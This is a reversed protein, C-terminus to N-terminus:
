LRVLRGLGIEQCTVAFILSLGDPESAAPVAMVSWPAAPTSGTATLSFEISERSSASGPIRWDDAGVGAARGGTRVGLVRGVSLSRTSEGTGVASVGAGLATTVMGEAEGGVIGAGEVLSSVWGSSVLAVGLTTGFRVTILASVGVGLATTVMGEAEGRVIGAGEDLSSVWGSSVLAAGFTTGFGVTILRSVTGEGAATSPM